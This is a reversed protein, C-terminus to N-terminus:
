NFFRKRTQNGYLRKNLANIQRSLETEDETLKDYTEKHKYEEINRYKNRLGYLESEYEVLIVENSTITDGLRNCEAMMDETSHKKCLGILEKRKQENYLKYRDIETNLSVVKCELVNNQQSILSLSNRLDRVTDNLKQLEKDFMTIRKMESIIYRNSKISHQYIKVKQKLTNNKRIADSIKKDLESVYTAFNKNNTSENEINEKLLLNKKIISSYDLTVKNTFGRERNIKYQTQLINNMIKRNINVENLHSKALDDYTNKKDMLSASIIQLENDSKIFDDKMKKHSEICENMKRDLINVNFYNQKNSINLLEMKIKEEMEYFFKECIFLRSKIGYAKFKEFKKVDSNNALFLITKRYDTLFDSM